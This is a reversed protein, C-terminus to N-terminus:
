TSDGNRPPKEAANRRSFVLGETGGDRMEIVPPATPVPARAGAQRFTNTTRSRRQVATTESPSRHLRRSQLAVLKAVTRPAGHPEVVLWKWGRHGGGAGIDVLHEPRVCM